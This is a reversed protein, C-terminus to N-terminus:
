AKKGKIAAIEEPNFATGEELVEVQDGDVSKTGETKTGDLSASVEEAQDSGIAAIEEPNFATGEELVEM